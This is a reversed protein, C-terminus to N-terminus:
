ISMPFEWNIPLEENVKLQILDTNSMSLVTQMQSPITGQRHMTAHKVDQRNIIPLSEKSM